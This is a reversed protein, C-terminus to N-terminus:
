DMTSKSIGDATYLHSDINVPLLFSMLNHCVFGRLRPALQRRKSASTNVKQFLYTISICDVKCAPSVTFHNRSLASSIHERFVSSFAQSPELHSRFQFLDWRRTRKAHPKLTSSVRWYPLHKYSSSHGVVTRHVVRFHCENSLAPVQHKM